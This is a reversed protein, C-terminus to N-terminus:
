HMRITNGDVGIIQGSIRAAEDSILFSCANGIDEEYIWHGLSAMSLFEKEIKKKSFKLFKAKDRIVRVMRDGKITGPCIANVRIKFKGLELALTKTVGVVAWKSAAYPSRLPFGLIGASSSINIISGGKNKKLMPIALKSFYFHSIVNVKLTEEWDKSKLKEITGTPGAIGVNNILADIKKTKKSIQDFLNKVDNENSADCQYSFLRKNNLKNKKIKKIFKNEIDSIFVTAGKSLCVKATAWGIGSAGASIVIKKNKLTDSM